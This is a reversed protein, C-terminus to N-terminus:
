ATAVAPRGRSLARELGLLLLDVVVAFVSILIAGAAIMDSGVPGYASFNIGQFVLYGLNEVGIIPAISAIGITTVAVVRIGAIVVPLALPFVVRLQVQARSMGMARGVEILTPDVGRIASVINRILVVQAYAVLPILVTTVTLGTFPILLPILAISPLTYIIGAGTIVPLQLREYRNILLAVPVAILLGFALTLATIFLHQGFLDLIGPTCAVLCNPDSVWHSGNLIYEM